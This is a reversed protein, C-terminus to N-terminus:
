RERLGIDFGRHILGAFSIDERENNPSKLFDAVACRLMQWIEHPDLGTSPYCKIHAPDSEIVVACVHREGRKFAFVSARRLRSCGDHASVFLQSAIEGDEDTLISVPVSWGDHDSETLLEVSVGQLLRLQLVTGRLFEPISQSRRFEDTALFALDLPRTRRVSGPEGVAASESPTANSKWRPARNEQSLARNKWISKPALDPFRPEIQFSRTRPALNSSPDHEVISQDEAGKPSAWKEGVNSCSPRTEPSPSKPRDGKVEYRLSNFPFPHSCSRLNYVLFTARPQGAFSLWKGSAALTTKGEFPFLAQAYIPQNAVSARLISAGIHAAARWASPELHLRAIDAASVGSMKEALSLMLRGTKTNLKAREYLSDRALPPLFLKTILNSSSGFYFRVMEMCPIILRRSDPLDILLCYSQTCQMHWPHESLPLLFGGEDLNLGAKILTTTDQDIRIDTFEELEYDPRIDLQGDRWVDGVRLLPLTGVSVWVRRQFNPPATSHASLLVAPDDRFRSDTVRSLHVFVSPQKRRISRDPFAIDGFWDLRWPTPGKPFVAIRPSENPSARNQSGDGPGSEDLQRM